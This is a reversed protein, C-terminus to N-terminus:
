EARQLSVAQDAIRHAERLEEKTSFTVMARATATARATEPIKALAEQESTANVFVYGHHDGAHCGWSVESLLKEHQHVFAELSALCHEADHGMIVLYRHRQADQAKPRDSALAGGALLLSLGVLAAIPKM